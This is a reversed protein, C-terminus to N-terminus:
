DLEGLCVGMFREGLCFGEVIDLRNSENVVEEFEPDVFAVCCIDELKDDVDGVICPEFEEIGYSL